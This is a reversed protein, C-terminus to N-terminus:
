YTTTAELILPLVIETEYTYLDIFRFFLRVFFKAIIFLLSVCFVIIFQIVCVVRYRVYMDSSLEDAYM